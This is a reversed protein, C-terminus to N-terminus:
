LEMSMAKGDGINTRFAHTAVAKKKACAVQMKLNVIGDLFTRRPSEKQLSKDICTARFYSLFVQSRSSSKETLTAM